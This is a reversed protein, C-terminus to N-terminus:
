EKEKLAGRDVGMVVAEAEETLRTAERLLDLDREALVGSNIWVEIVKQIAQSNKRNAVANRHDDTYGM